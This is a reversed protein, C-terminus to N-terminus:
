AGPTRGLARVADRLSYPLSLWSGRGGYARRTGGGRGPLCGLVPPPWSCQRHGTAAHEIDRRFAGDVTQCGGQRRTPWAHFVIAEPRTQAGILYSRSKEAKCHCREHDDTNHQEHNRHGPSDSTHPIAALERVLREAAFRQRRLNAGDGAAFYGTRFSLGPLLPRSRRVSHRLPHPVEQAPRKRDACSPAPASSGDEM